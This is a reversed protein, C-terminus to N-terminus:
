PSPRRRRCTVAYVGVGVWVYIFGRDRRVRAVDGACLCALRVDSGHREDQMSNFFSFRVFSAYGHREDQSGKSGCGCASMWVGVGENM